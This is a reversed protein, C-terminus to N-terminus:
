VCECVGLGQTCLCLCVCVYAPLFFFYIVRERLRWVILLCFTLSLLAEPRALEWNLGTPSHSCVLSAMVRPSM